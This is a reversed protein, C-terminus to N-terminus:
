FSAQVRLGAVFSNHADVTGGPNVIYQLDPTIQLWPFIQIRYYLEYVSERDGPEYATLSDSLIGQAFGFALVDQDRAPLLGQYQAGLSWFHEILNCDQDAWGYRVFVGLGQEDSEDDPNERFVWQDANVYFGLDDRRTPPPGRHDDRLKVFREKPQPDYWLGFRYNGPLKGLATQWVPMLGAESIAYFYDEDHFATNFGTTAYETQADAAGLGAYFWEVPTVVLQAGLGRDPVSNNATNILAPNLFQATEDNAFANTDFDVTLDLKGVRFRAKEDLFVQEYWLESVVIEEDGFADGNVGFLNGVRDEGIDDGWGSEALVYVTGGKLQLLKEFDLILEYDASGTVRHGNRTQIGGHVNHMYVSTLSLHFSLGAEEAAPRLGGWDGTVYETTTLNYPQREAPVEAPQTAAAAPQTAAPQTAAPEQATGRAPAWGLGLSTLLALFRPVTWGPM